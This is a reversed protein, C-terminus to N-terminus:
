MILFTNYLNTFPILPVYIQVNIRITYTYTCLALVIHMQMYFAFQWITSHADAHQGDLMQGKLNALHGETNEDLVAIIDKHCRNM